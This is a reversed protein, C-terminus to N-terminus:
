PQSAPAPQAPASRKPAAKKPVVKLPKDKRKPKAKSKPKPKPPEPSDGRSLLVLGDGAKERNWVRRKELDKLKKRDRKNLEKLQVVLYEMGKCHPWAKAVARNSVHPTLHNTACVSAEAPIAANLEQLTEFRKQRAASPNRDLRQWGGRFSDNEWIVGLKYSTLLSAVLAAIMSARLLRRPNLQWAAAVRSESLRKAGDPVALILIPLLVTSYQFHLSFHFKLNALGIFILGYTVMVLKRGSILPLAMLPVLLACYYFTKGEPTFLTKLAFVPNTVLSIVLGRLNEERHPIM